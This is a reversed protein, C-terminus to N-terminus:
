LDWPQSGPLYKPVVQRCWVQFSGSFPLGGTGWGQREQEKSCRHSFDCYSDEWQLEGEHRTLRHPANAQRKLASRLQTVLLDYGITQPMVAPFLSHSM